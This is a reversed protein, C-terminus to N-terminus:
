AKCCGYISPDMGASTQFCDITAKLRRAPKRLSVELLFFCLFIEGPRTSLHGAACGCSECVFHIKVSTVSNHRGRFCSYGEGTDSPKRALEVGPSASRGRVKWYYKKKRHLRDPSGASLSTVCGKIWETQSSISTRTTLSTAQM